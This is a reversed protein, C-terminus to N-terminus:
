KRFNAGARIFQTYYYELLRTSENDLKLEDKKQYITKIRQYLKENLYIADQQAALKPSIVENLKQLVSDTNAGSLMSFVGNVRRLLPSSKEMEVLTNEFTPAEPNQTIKEIATLQEKFGEEFAPEFDSDKIKTFDPAQFPLASAHMFPNSSLDKTNNM